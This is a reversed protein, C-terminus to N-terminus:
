AALELEVIEDLIEAISVGGYNALNAMCEDGSLSAAYYVATMGDEIDSDCFAHRPFLDQLAYDDRISELISIWSERSRKQHPDWGQRVLVDAWLFRYHAKLAVKEALWKSEDMTNAGNIIEM